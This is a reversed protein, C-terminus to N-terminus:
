SPGNGRDAAGRLPMRERLTAISEVLADVARDVDAGTTTHGLTMRLAGGGRAPDIGMAALVHSPEMAGSACASAASACVGAQDLLYLLAESEVGEVLVHASGAVKAAPPVTEHVGDIRGALGGILRDRLAAIRVTEAAREADTAVIAAATAIIGPVNHTGSRRDREQGGGVILPDIGTGNRMALVGVGKPGGFKHASLSLVDVHPWLERLDLWCTAQVADTHIAALPSRDRVISAVAALDTISGVENNVAMVSVVAVDDDLAARLQDLDVRAAGDTGVVTGHHREVAHLVAHHEAASCVARGGASRWVAGSIAANDGETGGSTFVVEGPACGIAAAVQDRADDVARRVERAFRHSGSPNAFREALYPLMAEIAVQRMPTTAAHDLYVLRDTDVTPAM